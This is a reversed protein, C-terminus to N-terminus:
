SPKLIVLEATDSVDAVFARDLIFNYVFFIPSAVLDYQGLL